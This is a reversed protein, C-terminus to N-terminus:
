LIILDAVALGVQNFFLQIIYKLQDWIIGYVKNNEPPMKTILKNHHRNKVQEIKNACTSQVNWRLRDIEKQTGPGGQWNLHTTKISFLLKKNQSTCM